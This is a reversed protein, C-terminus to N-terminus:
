SRRSPQPAQQAPNTCPQSELTLASLCSMAIYSVPFEGIAAAIAGAAGASIIDISSLSGLMLGLQSAGMNFPPGSTYADITGPM